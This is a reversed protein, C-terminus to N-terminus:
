MILSFDKIKNFRYNEILFYIKPYFNFFLIFNLFIITFNSDQKPADM